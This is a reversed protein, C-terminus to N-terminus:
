LREVQKRERQPYRPEVVEVKQPKTEKRICKSSPKQENPQIIQLQNFTRFINDTHRNGINGDLLYGVPLNPRILIEQVKRPEISWKIDASRFKGHVRKGTAVDIPYDLAVRVPTDLQIIDGSAKTWIPEEIKDSPKLDKETKLDIEKDKVPRHANLVRILENM